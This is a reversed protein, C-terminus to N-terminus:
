SHSHWKKEQYPYNMKTTHSACVCVLVYMYSYIRRPRRDIKIIRWLSMVVEGGRVITALSNAYNCVSIKM